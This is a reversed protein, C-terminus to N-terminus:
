PTRSTSVPTLLKPASTRLAHDCISCEVNRSWNKAEGGNISKVFDQYHPAHNAHFFILHIHNDEGMHFRLNYPRLLAVRRSRTREEHWWASGAKATEEARDVVGFILLRFERLLEADVPQGPLPIQSRVIRREAKGGMNWAAIWANLRGEWDPKENTTRVIIVPDQNVLASEFVADFGDTDVYQMVTPDLRAPPPRDSQSDRTSRCGTVFFFALMVMGVIPRNM